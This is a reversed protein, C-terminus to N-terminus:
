ALVAAQFISQLYSSWPEFLEEVSADILVSTRSSVRVIGSVTVGLQVAEVGHKRAEQMVREPDSTAVLIRSPGEHFLAQESPLETDLEIDAGIKAPGFSCEALAVALGGEGLDHATSVVRERVLTRVTGQVRKEYEMDLAPPVGWLSKEIVKAYQTGGFQRWDSQGVGGVLIITLGEGTFTPSVPLATPLVGVIGV